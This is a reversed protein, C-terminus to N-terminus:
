PDPRARVERCCLDFRLPQRVDDDVLCQGSAPTHGGSDSWGCARTWRLHLSPTGCHLSEVMASTDVLEEERAQTIMQYAQHHRTVYIPKSGIIQAIEVPSMGDANLAAAIAGYGPGEAYLAFIRRVVQAQETDIENQRIATGKRSEGIRVRAYGYTRGGTTRGRVANARLGRQSKDATDRVSQEATFSKMMFLMASGSSGDLKMGDAVSVFDVGYHKLLKRFRHLDGVDRSIRDLSEAYVTSVRRAKIAAILAQVGPRADWVSGSIEEDSFEPLADTPEGARSLYERLRAFQDTASSPNQLDSSFRAYLANTRSM